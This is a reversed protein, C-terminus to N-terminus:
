WSLNYEQLWLELALLMFIRQYLGGRSIVGGTQGDQAQKFLRLWERIVRQNLFTHIKAQSILLVDDLMQHFKDTVMIDLPIGFGHKPHTAVQQPLWQNAIHRLVLKGQRGDTKLRHPLRLGLSVVTEDLMPVRIEISALMSMMDVKRLMDSALGVSFLKETIRCSLLELNTTGKPSYSDFHRYVPQFELGDSLILEQKQQENLYSSLGAILKASDEQGMKALMVAKALQRGLDQTWTSLYSGAFITAKQLCTPVNMLRILKNARWFRAYGGFAEDGGDGSLACIIGRERIGKSVWYTPILSSDAFPQDFHRLLDLVLEPTVAWDGLEITQHDTQYHKSVAQAVPTEDYTKDPFRINFTTPSRDETRCYAAVVLSSDIGGSLLAGVPVDAVIQSKVAELLAITIEETTQPLRLQDDPQAQLQYFQSIIAGNSNVLISSGQPLAQIDNFGTLPEPIYGLSLYDYCAQHNIIPEFDTLALIAKIESAFIWQENQVTYYLPKIGFRDRALFLQRKSKDYIAFAFMGRLRNVMQSGYEEYLHVLVETDSDSRFKHGKQKLETRLDRYNYIEGNFIVWVTNDENTMPQHGTPTLDILALRRHVLECCEDIYYGNGDPGRHKLLRDTQEHWLSDHPLFIPHFRGALGCM